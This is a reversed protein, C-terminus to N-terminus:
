SEVEPILEAFSEWDMTHSRLLKEPLLHIYYATDSFQAHGMYTSLYPLKAYLDAGSDLWQMMVTTAFRHRLDYVRVRLTCKTGRVKKWIGLFQRTLWKASYAIGETNPFFFESEPAFFRLKENYSICLNHMDKSMPVYRERHSKNKRIFLVGKNLDVDKKLLERGENPRLGCFYIMRLLVPVIMHSNPSNLSPEMNDAELFIETLDEDSFIYPTFTSRGGVFCSPLIYSKEGIAEMYKGFERVAIIRRRFGSPSESQRQVCWGLVLEKTLRDQTPYHQVCYRSFDNLFGEYTKREYGLHVKFNLMENIYTTFLSTCDKKM